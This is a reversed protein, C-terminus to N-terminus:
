FKYIDYEGYTNNFNSMDVILVHECDILKVNGHDDIAFNDMTVDYMYLALDDVTRTFSRALQILKLSLKVRELWSQFLASSLTPGVYEVVVARGCAGYTHPLFEPYTKSFIQM